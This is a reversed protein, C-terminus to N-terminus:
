CTHKGAVIFKFPLLGVLPVPVHLWNAPGVVVVIAFAFKDLVDTVLRTGPTYVKIHVILLPTQAFLLSVIFMVISLKVTAPFVFLSVVTHAVLLVPIILSVPLTPLTTLHSNLVLLPEVHAFMALVVEDCTNLLRVAVVQYRAKTFFPTQAAKYESVVIM